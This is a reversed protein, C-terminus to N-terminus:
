LMVEEGLEPGGCGEGLPAEVRWVDFRRDYGAVPIPILSGLRPYASPSLEDKVWNQSGAEEQRLPEVECLDLAEPPLRAADGRDRNRGVLLGVGRARGDGLDAVVQSPLPYEVVAGPLPAGDADTATGADDAASTGDPEAGGSAAGFVEEAAVDSGTSSFFPYSAAAAARAGDRKNAKKPAPRFEEWAAAAAGAAGGGGRAAHAAGEAGGADYAARAAPDSLVDYAAALAAFAAAAGPADSVDPHVELARRRYAAKVEAPSASPAVRLLEYYAAPRGAGGAGGGGGGGGGRANNNNARARGGGGGLAEEWTSFRPEDAGGPGADRGAAAGEGVLAWGSGALQLLLRDLARAYAGRLNAASSPVAHGCLAAVVGLLEAAEAEGAALLQARADRLRAGAAAAGAEDGALMPRLAAACAENLAAAVEAADEAAASSSSSDANATAHCALAHCHNSLRWARAARPADLAARPAAAGAAASRGAPAALRAASAPAGKALPRAEM